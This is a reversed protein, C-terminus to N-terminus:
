DLWEIGEPLTLCAACRCVGSERVPSALSITAVGALGPSVRSSRVVARERAPESSEAVEPTGAEVEFGNAPANSEWSTM